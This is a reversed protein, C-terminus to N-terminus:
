KATTKRRARRPKADEFLLGAPQDAIGMARTLADLGEALERLQSADLAKLGNVLLATPPPATKTAARRGRATLGISARRKDDGAQERTVYGNEVLRDVIAAASSRDTMTAEAIDNVSCGPTEAVAALVFRQAASLGTALETKRAVVRLERLIRRFADVSMGIHNPTGGKSSSRGEIRGATVAM